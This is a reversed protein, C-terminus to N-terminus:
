NESVSTYFTTEGTIQQLNKSVFRTHEAMEDLSCIASSLHADEQDIM